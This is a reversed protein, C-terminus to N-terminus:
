GEVVPLDMKTYTYLTRWTEAGEKATRTHNDAMMRIEDCTEPSLLDIVFVKREADIMHVRHGLITMVEPTPNNGVATSKSLDMGNGKSGSPPSSAQHAAVIPSVKQKLSTTSRSKATMSRTQIVNVERGANAKARIKDVYEQPAFTSPLTVTPQIVSVEISQDSSADENKMTIDTSTSASIITEVDAERQTDIGGGDGRQHYHQQQQQQWYPFYGQGNPVFHSFPHRVTAALPALFPPLPMSWHSRNGSSDGPHHSPGWMPFGGPHQFTPHGFNTAETSSWLAGPPDIPQKTTVMTMDDNSVSVNGLPTMKNQMTVDDTEGSVLTAQQTTDCTLM